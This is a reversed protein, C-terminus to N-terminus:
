RHRYAAFFLRGSIKLNGIEKSPNLFQSPVLANKQRSSQMTIARNILKKLLNM